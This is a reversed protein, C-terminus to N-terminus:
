RTQTTHYNALRKGESLDGEAVVLALKSGPSTM